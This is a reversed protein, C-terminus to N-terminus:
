TARLRRADNSWDNISRHATQQISAFNSNSQPTIQVRFQGVNLLCDWKRFQTISPKGWPFDARIYFMAEITVHANQM